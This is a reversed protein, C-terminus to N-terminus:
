FLTSQELKIVDLDISFFLANVVGPCLSLEEVPRQFQYLLFVSSLHVFRAAISAVLKLNM